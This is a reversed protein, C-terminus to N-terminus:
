GATSRVGQRCDDQRDRFGTGRVDSDSDHRASAGRAQQVRQHGLPLDPLIVTHRAHSTAPSACHLYYLPLAWTSTGPNGLFVRNLTVDLLPREAAERKANQVVHAIIQNVSEKVPALGEMQQLAQLAAFCGVETLKGHITSRRLCVSSSWIRRVKYAASAKLNKETVPPGLLDDRTLLFINCAVGQGQLKRIRSAQRARAEEFVVRVARANGFGVQGRRRGLRMAAMRLHAEDEPFFPQKRSQAAPATPTSGPYHEQKLGQSTWLHDQGKAFIWQKSDPAVLPNERTGIERDVYGVTNFYQDHFSYSGPPQTWVNGFRDLTGGPPVVPTPVPKATPPPPPPLLQSQLIALLEEDSYDKFVFQLPFRSPIGPNHEFLKDMDTKYGAFVWVLKGYKGDLAEALPLIFDLVQKGMRDSILQYTEDVFIVGGGNKKADDLLSEM